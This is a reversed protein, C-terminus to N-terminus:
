PSRPLPRGRPPAARVASTKELERRLTGLTKAARALLLVTETPTPEGPGLPRLPSSPSPVPRQPVWPDLPPREAGHGAPVGQLGQGARGVAPETSSETPGIARARKWEDIFKHHPLEGYLELRWFSLVMLCLWIVRGCLLYRVVDKGSDDKSTVMTGLFDAWTAGTCSVDCITLDVAFCVSTSLLLGCFASFALALGGHRRWYPTSAGCAVCVMFIFAEVSSPLAGLGVLALASKALIGLVLGLMTGLCVRIGHYGLWFAPLSVSCALCAVVAPAWPGLGSHGFFLGFFELSVAAIALPLGLGVAGSCVHSQTELPLALGVISGSLAIALVLFQVGPRRLPSSLHFVTVRALSSACTVLDLSCLQQAAVLSAHSLVHGSEYAEAAARAEQAHATDEAARARRQALALRSELYEAERTAIDTANQTARLSEEVTRRQANLAAVARTDSSHQTELEASIAEDHIRVQRVSSLQQECKAITQNSLVSVPSTVLFVVSLLLGSMQFSSYFFM